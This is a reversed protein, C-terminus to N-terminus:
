RMQGIKGTMGLPVARLATYDLSRNQRHML